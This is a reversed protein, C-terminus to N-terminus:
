FVEFVEMPMFAGVPLYYSEGAVSCFSIGAIESAVGPPEAVPEVSFAFCGAAGLAKVLPGLKDVNDVLHLKVESTVERIDLEQILKLFECEKFIERLRLKNPERHRAAELDFEVGTDAHFTALDRSLRALEANKELSQRVRASKINAINALVGEVSGYEEILLRATKEGIGPVGPINDSTDGMLGLVEVVQPPEVGFYEKVGAIDYTKDKMTDVMVVDESGAQMMDKDGSVIAVKFGERSYKHALEGIIDDAEMGEIEIVPISFAQIIEKIYPFQPSLADPMAPRNAKYDQFAETRFTSKSDFVVAIYDPKSERFLKLLMATFGYIANTPFGKSNSLNRIAYFARYVYNNGDILFLTPKTKTDNM